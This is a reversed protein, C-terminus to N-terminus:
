KQRRLGRTEAAAQAIATGDMPCQHCCLASAYAVSPSQWPNLVSAKLLWGEQVGLLITEMKKEM